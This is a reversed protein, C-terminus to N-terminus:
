RMVLKVCEEVSAAKNGVERHRRPRIADGHAVGFTTCGLAIHAESFQFACDFLARRRSRSDGLDILGRSEPDILSLDLTMGDPSDEQCAIGGMNVRNDACLPHVGTYM